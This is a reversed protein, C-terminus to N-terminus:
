AKKRERRHVREFLAPVSLSFGPLVSGGDITGTKGIRKRTTPSTYAEATQTKPYVIWVLEVGALFYDKLKRQMEKRTNGASFVEVALNPVLDPIPEPPFEGGPVRDWSIYSVDPMRVMKPLVRLTGDAGLVAGLDREDVFNGLQRAIESGLLSEIAGMAKEVLVGDVLECLRKRPAELEKLVDEETATGPPPHLRIRNLPVDGIQELLEALTELPLTQSAM